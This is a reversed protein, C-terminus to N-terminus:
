YIVIDEEDQMMEDGNEDHEKEHYTRTKSPTPAVTDPNTNQPPPEPEGITADKSRPEADPEPEPLQEEQQPPPSPSRPPPSVGLAKFRQEKRTKFERVEKEIVDRTARIQDNVTDEQERTLEWPVYYQPIHLGFQHALLRRGTSVLKPETKTQLSHAMALM